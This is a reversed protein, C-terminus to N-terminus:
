SATEAKIAEVVAIFREWAATEPDNRPPTAGKLAEGPDLVLVTKKGGFRVELLHRNVKVDRGFQSPLQNFNRSALVKALRALGERDIQGKRHPERVEDNIFKAVTWAGMPEITLIEGAVGVFGEQADRLVLAESLTGNETLFDGM